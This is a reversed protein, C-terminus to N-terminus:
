PNPNPNPSSNPNPNPNPNPHAKEAKRATKRMEKAAETLGPWAAVKQAMQDASHQARPCGQGRAFRLAAEVFSGEHVGRSPHGLNLILSWVPVSTVAEFHHKGNDIKLLRLHAASHLRAGTRTPLLVFQSSKINVFRWEGDEGQTMLTGGTGPKTIMKVATLDSAGAGDSHDLGQGARIKSCKVESVHVDKEFHLCRQQLDECIIAPFHPLLDQSPNPNPSPNHSPSPSPNPNLTLTPTLLM